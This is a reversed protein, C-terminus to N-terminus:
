SLDLGSYVPLSQYMKRSEVIIKTSHGGVLKNTRKGETDPSIQVQEIKEYLWHFFYSTGPSFEYVKQREIYM